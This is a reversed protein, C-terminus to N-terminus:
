NNSFFSFITTPIQCLFGIGILGFGIKAKKIYKVDALKQKPTPENSRIQGFGKELFKSITPPLSYSFVMWAGLVELGQGVLQISAIIIKSNFCEALIYLLDIM